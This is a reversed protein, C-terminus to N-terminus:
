GIVAYKFVQTCGSLAIMASLLMVINVISNYTM